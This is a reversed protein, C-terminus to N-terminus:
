NMIDDEVAIGILKSKHMNIRLGSACFFCKLVNIIISINFDSWQGANVVNQFSLHLSEMILIFLFPSLPDGQKLGKHFQFEKTPSGNVLISARSSRLCSQIWSCWRNGFGFKKLVDDLYDWRVSDFAKEFDVKFIMAQKKKSKCWQILDNLIFPGDLIQRDAVFASQVDSVIDGMVVVLCNALIKAIIKYLSGILSIPRFDKVMNANQTKPILAIFSSNGGKLFSGHQFFYSVAEMVDNELFSWYRQYFGFTFGDPGLSKDLSFDWVVRNLEELSVNKELDLQIDSSLQDLFNMDLSLRTSSPCDFRNKFHSLFENKMTSPSNIWVGDVLIGRITLNNKLKDLDLLSNMVNMRNNLLDSNANGADITKDIDVLTSRIAETPDHQKTPIIHLLTDYMALAPSGRVTNALSSFVMFAILATLTESSCLALNTYTLSSGLLEIVHSEKTMGWLMMKSQKATLMSLLQAGHEKSAQGPVKTSPTKADGSGLSMLLLLRTTINNKGLRMKFAIDALTQNITVVM